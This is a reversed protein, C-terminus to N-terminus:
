PARSVMLAVSVFTVKSVLMGTLTRASPVVVTKQSLSTFTTEARGVFSISNVNHSSCSTM